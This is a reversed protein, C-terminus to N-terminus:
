AAEHNGDDSPLSGRAVVGELAPPRAPAAEGTVPASGGAAGPATESAATPASEGAVPEGAAVGTTEIVGPDVGLATVAEQTAALVGAAELYLSADEPIADFSDPGGAPYERQRSPSRRTQYPDDSRRTASPPNNLARAAAPAMLPEDLGLEMIRGTALKQLELVERQIGETRLIEDIGSQDRLNIAAKRLKNVNQGLSRMMRPLDRPGIVVIALLVLLVAEGFSVGFM